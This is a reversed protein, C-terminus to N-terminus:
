TKESKAAETGDTVAPATLFLDRPEGTRARPHGYKHQMEVVKLLKGGANSAANGVVPSVRGEVLDCMLSSMFGAFDKGTVIGQKAIKLCRPTEMTTVASTVSKALSKKSM